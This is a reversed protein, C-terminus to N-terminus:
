MRSEVNDVSSQDLKMFRRRERLLKVFVGTNNAKVGDSEAAGAGVALLAAKLLCDM